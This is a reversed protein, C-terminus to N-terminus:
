QAQQPTGMAQYLVATDSLRRGASRIASLQENWYQQESARVASDAVAGLKGRAATEDFAQRAADASANAAASAQADSELAALTDAVNQFASLVTAKYQDAAADYFDIAARRQALLAGGHFLPQTLSGGISWLAGAGSLAVPWSFGGQGMSATLSLSPFLQATAVGVEAAAAKLSAEAAAIDPRTHLLSSPVVVPVHEPLTLSALPPIDPVADPSRGILVALAHRAAQRQQRLAPLSAELDFANQQSALAQAHSVAGLAYRRADEQATQRALVILRRTAGVEDDLAAANIATTVINAALARRAADLEFAQVDVRAHVAANAYRVAGFLDFTYHAELQGVFVNYRVTPPGAEPIGLARERTAQGSADLTPLLSAGIQARLQERAGALSKETAALTPSHKLGEDVLADLQASRYLHWWQPVPQAGVDFRQAVGGAAATQEPLATQGYHAPSPMAPPEGNPGLSCAALTMALAATTALALTLRRHESPIRLVNM